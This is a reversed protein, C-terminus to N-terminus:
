KGWRGGGGLEDVRRVAVVGSGSGAAGAGAAGSGASAGSGAAAAPARGGSVKAVEGTLELPRAQPVRVGAGGKLRGPPAVRDADLGEAELAYRM